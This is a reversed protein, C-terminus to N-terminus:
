SNRHGDGGVPFVFTVRQQQHGSVSSIVVLFAVGSGLQQLSKTSKSETSAGFPNGCATLTLAAVAAPIAIKTVTPRM